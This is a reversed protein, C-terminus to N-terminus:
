GTIARRVATTWGEYLRESASADAAPEFTREVRRLEDVGLPPYVGAQMGALRAAGWATTELVAPREVPRRLQDAVTQMLWDNAAMGGDVRLTAIPVGDEAFAGALDRTQLAVSELAARVIEARGSDRTLGSIMGRADPNWWPAGLGTFAPVFYVGNSSAVSTAVRESEAATSILGLKDRLWQVVTGANFISGELAYTPVGDLQLATTTLLRHRSVLPTSGTHVLVFCGTGYTAKAEGASICEQGVAGAQQDGVLARIVVPAGLVDASIVGYDAASDRVEPLMARPVRFLECLEDSWAQAHIDYLLTRSANTADTAHVRGGTLRWTLWSDVTGALLEGREAASRAGAVNDLIWALKTASFYPDLLLGTRAVLAVAHSDNELTRCVDATRRDQWVIARHVPRGTAREWVVITERQVAIGIGAIDRAALRAAALAERACAVTTRFIEEADHEVWGDSPFHQTFPTQARSLVAGDDAFVMARTSTTGADLALTPV